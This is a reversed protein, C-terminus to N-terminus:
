YTYLTLLLVAGKAKTSYMNKKSILLNNVYDDSINEVTKKCNVKGVDFNSKAGPVKYINTFWLSRVDTVL